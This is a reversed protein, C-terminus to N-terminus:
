EREKYEFSGDSYRVLDFAIEKYALDEPLVKAPIFVSTEPELAEPVIWTSRLPYSVDYYCMYGDKYVFRAKMKM